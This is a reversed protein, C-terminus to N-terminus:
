KAKAPTWCLGALKELMMAKNVQENEILKLAVSTYANSIDRKDLLTWQGVSFELLANQLEDLTTASRVRILWCDLDKGTKGTEIQKIPSVSVVAPPSKVGSVGDIGGAISLKVKSLRDIIHTHFTM